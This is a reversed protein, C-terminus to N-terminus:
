DCINSVVSIVILVAIEVNRSFLKQSEMKTTVAEPVCVLGKVKLERLQTRVQDGKLKLAGRFSM